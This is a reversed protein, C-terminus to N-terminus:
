KKFFLNQALLKVFFNNDALLFLYHVCARMHLTAMVSRSILGGPNVSSLMPSSFPEKPNVSCGPM